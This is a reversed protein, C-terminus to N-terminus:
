PEKLRDHNGKTHVRRALGEEFVVSLMALLFLLYAGTIVGLVLWLPDFRFSRM